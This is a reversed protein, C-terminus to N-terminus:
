RCALVWLYDVPEGGEQQREVTSHLTEFGADTVLRRTVDADWSSFFMRTGLWDGAVGPNDEPEASFLLLGGDRLWSHVRELLPGLQERPVHDFTYFAVIADFSGTPYSLQALDAVVFEAGPVNARARSVQEPSVDVGTAAHRAAIAATAPVGNGCGLDLVRSGNPLRDLVQALWRMRPWEVGEELQEYADAVEDYGGAVVDQWDTDM